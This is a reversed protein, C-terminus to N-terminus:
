GGGTLRVSIRSYGCHEAGDLRRIESDARRNDVSFEALRLHSLLLALMATSDCSNVRFQCQTGASAIRFQARTGSPMNPFRKSCSSSSPKAEVDEPILPAFPALSGGAGRPLLSRHPMLFWPPM